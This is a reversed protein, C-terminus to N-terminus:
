HTSNPVNTISGIRTTTPQFRRHLKPLIEPSLFIAVIPVTFECLYTMFYLHDEVKGFHFNDKDSIKILRIIAIPLWIITYFIAIGLLQTIMKWNKSWNRLNRQMERRTWLVRILIIISGFIIVFVPFLMNFVWNFNSLGGVLDLCQTGCLVENYDLEGPCDYLATALSYFIVLYLNILVLPIHHFILRQRNSRILNPNFVLIYRELTYIAKAWIICATFLYDICQWIYCFIESKSIVHGRAYYSFDFSYFEKM